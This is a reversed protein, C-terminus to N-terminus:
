WTSGPPSRVLSVATVFLEARPGFLRQAADAAVLNSGAMEAPTLVSLYAVNALVYVLTVLAIGVFTARVISRRPDTMEECFYAAGNWGQYTGAIARLSIAIGLLTVSPSVAPAPTPAGRPALLLALILAGYVLAKVASGVEQSPGGVRTGLAQVGWAVCILSLSLLGVPVGALLGLRHLYEAFVVALIAVSGINAFCDAVGTVLGALPGFARHLFSYPGGAERISAALEVTSMSDVFVLAGFGAWLLLILWGQQVHTAILGPARLIGQGITGGIIAAVGFAVGLIRLLHGNEGQGM